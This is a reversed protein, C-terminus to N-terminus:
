CGRKKRGPVFSVGPHRSTKPVHLNQCNQRPTVVRLNSKQNNLGNGDVHDCQLLGIDNGLIERHMKIQRQGGYGDHIRKNRVAYYTQRSKAAYWKFKSLREYDDNDVITVLGQTLLIEKM